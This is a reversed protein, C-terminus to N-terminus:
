LQARAKRVPVPPLAASGSLVSGEGCVGRGCESRSSTRSCSRASRPWRMACSNISSHRVRAASRWRWIWRERQRRAGPGRGAQWGERRLRAPSHAVATACLGAKGGRKEEEREPTKAGFALPAEPGHAPLQQAIGYACAGPAKGELSPPGHQRYLKSRGSSTPTSRARYVRTPDNWLTHPRRTGGRHRCQFGPSRATLFHSSQESQRRGRM